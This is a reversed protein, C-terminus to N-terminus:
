KIPILQKIDDLYQTINTIRPPIFQFDFTLINRSHNVLCKVDRYLSLPNKIDSFEVIYFDNRKFVIGYDNAKIRIFNDLEYSIIRKQLIGILPPTQNIQALVQETTINNLQPIHSWELKVQNGGAYDIDRFIYLSSNM